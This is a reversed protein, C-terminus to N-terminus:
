ALARDLITLAHRASTADGHGLCAEQNLLEKFAPSNEAAVRRDSESGGAPTLQEILTARLADQQGHIEELLMSKVPQDDLVNFITGSIADRQDRDLAHLADFEALKARLLDRTSVALDKNRPNHM